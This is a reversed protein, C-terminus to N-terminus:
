SGGSTGAGAAPLLEELVGQFQERLRDYAPGTAPGSFGTYVARARGAGDLFVFTPFARVRDLAPFSASAKAKDSLGAVLIPYRLGHKRAYKQVQRTDRVRDGTVEFALGLIRLGRKGYRRTLEALYPSADNCNPCWSGFLVLLRAKGRFEPDDLSRTRGTLDPFSLDALHTSENWRTLAFADPLAAASDRVATWTDHWSDRSWFDGQLAGDAQVRAHFLFAHAGDFCSLRLFGPTLDGELYRYDGTTNLFTGTVPAAAGPGKQEFVGVAPDTEGAFRVAWRGAVSRVPTSRPAVAGTTPVFRAAGTARDRQARAHFPLKAWTDLGTRKTWEGDLQAGDASLTGRVRADYHTFDMIVERAQLHTEPVLIREAGNLIWTQLRGSASSIELGFPLEGGPSDLWARWRGAVQDLPAAARATAVALLGWLMCLMLTGRMWGRM